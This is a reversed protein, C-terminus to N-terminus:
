ADFGGFESLFMEPLDEVPRPDASDTLWAYFWDAVKNVPVVPVADAAIEEWPKMYEVGPSLWLMARRIWYRGRAWVVSGVPPEPPPPPAVPSLDRFAVNAIADAHKVIATFESCTRTVEWEGVLLSSTVKDGPKPTYTM